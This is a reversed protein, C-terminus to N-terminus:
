VGRGPVPGMGQGTRASGTSSGGTTAPAAAAATAGGKKKKSTAAEAAPGTPLCILVVLFATRVDTLKLAATRM